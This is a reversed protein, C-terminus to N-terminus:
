VTLAVSAAPLETAGLPNGDIILDLAAVYGAIAAAVAKYQSVTFSHWVGAADKMPYSTTGGPFEGTTNLTTAVAGIKGTTVSDTPFVTAALTLTGSLTIALGASLAAAASTSLTAPPDIFSLYRPDTSLLTGQHPFLNTSIPGGFVGVVTPETDDSFAVYIETTM